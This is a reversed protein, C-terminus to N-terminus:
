IAIGYKESLHREIAQTTALSHAGAFLSIEAIAGNFPYLSGAYNMGITVDASTSLAIATYPGGSYLGVGNRRITSSAPAKLTWVVIQWGSLASGAGYTGTTAYKPVGSAFRFTLATGSYAYAWFESVAAAVDDVRVVAYMTLDKAGSTHPGTAGSFYGQKLASTGDFDIAPWRNIADLVMEPPTPNAGAPGGTGRNIQTAHAFTGSEDLWRDINRPQNSYAIRKPFVATGDVYNGLTNPRLSFIMNAADAYKPSKGSGCNIQLLRATASLDDLKLRKEVVLFRETGVYSEGVVFVVDGSEFNFHSWDAFEIEIEDQDDNWFALDLHNIVRDRRRHYPLSLEIKNAASAPGCKQSVMNRSIHPFAIPFSTLYDGAGDATIGGSIMTLAGFRADLRDIRFRDTPRITYSAVSDGDLYIPTTREVMSGRTAIQLKVAGGSSAPAIVLFDATHEFLTRAQEAISRGSDRWVILGCPNLDYYASAAAFSTQDIYDKMTLVSNDLYHAIWSYLIQAPDRNFWTYAVYAFLTYLVAGGARGAYFIYASKPDNYCSPRAGFSQFSGGGVDLDFSGFESSHSFDETGNTQMADVTFALDPDAENQWFIDQIEKDLIGNLLGESDYLRIRKYTLEVLTSSYDVDFALLFPDTSSAFDGASIAM